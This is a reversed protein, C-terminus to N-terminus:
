TYSRRMFQNIEMVTSTDAEARCMALICQAKARTTQNIRRIEAASSAADTADDYKSLLRIWKAAAAAPSNLENPSNQKSATGKKSTPKQGENSM